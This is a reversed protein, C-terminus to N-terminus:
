LIGGGGAGLGFTWDLCSCLGVITRCACVVESACSERWLRRLTWASDVLVGTILRLGTLCVKASWSRELRGSGLDAFLLSSVTALTWDMSRLMPRVFGAFDSGAM